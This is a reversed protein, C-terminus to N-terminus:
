PREGVMVLLREPVGEVCEIDCVFVGEGAFLLREIELERRLVVGRVQERTVVGGRGALEQHRREGGRHVAFLGHGAVDQRDDEAPVEANREVLKRAGYLAGEVRRFEPMGPGAALLHLDVQEARLPVKPRCDALRDLRNPRTDAEGRSQNTRATSM